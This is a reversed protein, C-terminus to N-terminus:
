FGVALDRRVFQDFVSTVNWWDSVNRYWFGKLALYRPHCQILVLALLPISLIVVVWAAISGSFTQSYMGLTFATNALILVICSKLVRPRLPGSISLRISMPDGQLSQMWVNSVPEIVPHHTKLKHGVVEVM